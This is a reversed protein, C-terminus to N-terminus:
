RQYKLFLINRGWVSILNQDLCLGSPYTVGIQAGRLAVPRELRCRWENGAMFSDTGNGSGACTYSRHLFAIAYSNRPEIRSTAM